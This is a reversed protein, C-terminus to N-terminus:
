YKKVIEKTTLRYYSWLANKSHAKAKAGYSSKMKIKVQKYDDDNFPRCEGIGKIRDLRVQINALRKAKVYECAETM